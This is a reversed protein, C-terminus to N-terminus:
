MKEKLITTSLMQPMWCFLLGKKLYYTAERTDHPRPSDGQVTQGSPGRELSQGAAGAQAGLRQCKWERRGSSRRRRDRRARRRRPRM